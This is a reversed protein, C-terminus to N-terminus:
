KYEVLVTLVGVSGCSFEDVLHETVKVGFDKTRVVVWVRDPHRAVVNVLIIANM